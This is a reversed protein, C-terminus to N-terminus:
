EPWYGGDPSFQFVPPSWDVFRVAGNQEEVYGQPSASARVYAGSMVAIAQCLKIGNGTYTGHKGTYDDSVRAMMCVRFNIEANSAFIASQDGFKKVTKSTIFESGILAGYAKWGTGSIKGDAFIKAFLEDMDAAVNALGEVVGVCHAFIDLQTLRRPRSANDGAAELLKDFFSDSETVVIQKNYSQGNVQSGINRAIMAVKYDAM